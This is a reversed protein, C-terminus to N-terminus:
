VRIGFGLVRFGSGPVRFRFGPVRFGFGSVQVGSGSVWFGFGSGRFGFGSVRFRFGPFRFGFGSVRFKSDSVVDVRQLGSNLSLIPFGFGLGSFRLGQPNEYACSVPTLLQLGQIRFGLGSWCSLAAECSQLASRAM